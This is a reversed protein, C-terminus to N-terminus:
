TRRLYRTRPLKDFVDLTEFQRTEWAVSPNDDLWSTHFELTIVDASDAHLLAEGSIGFTSEYPEERTDPAYFATYELKFTCAVADPTDTLFPSVDSRVLSNLELYQRSEPVEYELRKRTAGDLSRVIAAEGLKSGSSKTSSLYKQLDPSVWIRSLDAQLQTAPGKEFSRDSYFAKDSTVFFTNGHASTERVVEWIMADRFEEARDAPAIRNVVRNLAARAHDLTLPVREIMPALEAM